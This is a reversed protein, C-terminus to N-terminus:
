LDLIPKLMLGQTKNELYEQFILILLYYNM